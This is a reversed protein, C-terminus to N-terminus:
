KWSMKDDIHIGLFKINYISTIQKNDYVFNIKNQMNNNRATFHIYHTKNFNIFLKNVKFWDNISCFPTNTNACLDEHTSSTVLLSTDDAFLIPVAKDNIIKLLDNIYLVFLLPGLISGQPVGHSIKGWISSENLNLNTNSILVRQSRNRFYSVFWLKAKDKIGYFEL